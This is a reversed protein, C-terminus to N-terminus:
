FSVFGMGTDVPIEDFTVPKQAAKYAHYQSFVSQSATAKLYDTASNMWMLANDQCQKILLNLSTDPAQASKGDRDRNAPMLSYVTIGASDIRVNLMPIAWVVTQYAIYKEIHTLLEAEEETWGPAAQLSKNKLYAFFEAGLLKKVTQQEVDYMAPRMFFYNRHPSASSFLQQFRSGTKIFLSRYNKFEISATWESLDEKNDELFKLLREEAKEGARQFSELFDAKQYQYATKHTDTETRRAGADGIVLDLTQGAIAITYPAIVDRVRTLLAAHLNTLATPTEALTANYADQLTNYLDAGLIPIIFDEEVQRETVRINDFHLGGVRDAHQKFEEINRILAM